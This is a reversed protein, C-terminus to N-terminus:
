ISGIDKSIAINDISVVSIEETPNSKERTAFDNDVTAFGANYFLFTLLLALSFIKRMKLRKRRKVEKM